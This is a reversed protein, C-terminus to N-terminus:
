MLAFVIIGIYMILSLLTSFSITTSIFEMEDGLDGFITVAYSPPLTILLLLVTMLMKDYAVFRFIIFACLAGVVAMVALRLLCAKMVPKLLEKRFSLEYGLSILILATTPGSIMDIVAHYIGSMQGADIWKGVGLLGLIIGAGMALLPRSHILSNAVSKVSAKEGSMAQLMPVAIAFVFFTHGIDCKAMAAVGVSGSLLGILSYGLMGVEDATILFPLFRAHDPMLRRMGYGIALALVMWFFVTFGTVLIDTSYDTFLFADFLVAPLMVNGVVTRFAKAGEPGFRNWKRAGIGVLLMATIPLILKLIDLVMFGKDERDKRNKRRGARNGNDVPFCPM